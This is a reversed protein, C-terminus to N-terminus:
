PNTRVYYTITPYNEGNIAMDVTVTGPNGTSETFNLNTIEAINANVVIEPASVSGVQLTLNNDSDTTLTHQVGSRTVFIEDTNAIIDSNPVGNFLWSIKRHMFNIESEVRVMEQIRAQGDFIQFASVIAGGIVFTFLAIYILTEILTFGKQQTVIPM